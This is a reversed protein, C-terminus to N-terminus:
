KSIRVKADGAFPLANNEMSLWGGDSVEGIVKGDAIKKLIIEEVYDVGEIDEIAAAIESIFIKEGFDFGNGHKGGCVPDFFSRLRLRIKEIIIPSENLLLPKFTIDTNIKKYDPWLVNIKDRINFLARDRVYRDVSDMLDKRPATYEGKKGALIIIHIKGAYDLIAKAKIVEPSAEKAFWEFDDATVAHHRNKITHPGRVVTDRIEESDVGGSSPVHNLVMEIDPNAKRLTNITGKEQNGRGGGGSKYFKATINNKGKPPLMGHIGDGFIIIGNKRDIIYDRSIRGSLAFSDTENWEFFADGEKVEIKQGQLVPKKSFSFSQGPMGNGSGLVENHISIHNVAWVTNPFVANIDASFDANETEIRIWFLERGFEFSRKFDPPFLLSIIGSKNFSSTEDTDPSIEKWVTGNYYKWKAITGESVKERISFYLLILINVEVNEFGLFLQPREFASPEFPDFNETDNFERFIFNNYSLKHKIKKDSYKYVIDISKIFPPDYTSPVYKIGFFINRKELESKLEKRKISEPLSNIVDDIPIHELEGESGYGGSRIRVRIWRNSKGNIEYEPISPCIFEITSIGSRRFNDTSDQSITLIQWRSGDWFEWILEIDKKELEKELEINLIVTSNEKSLAEQSGIYFSSGEEPKEGFPHIGKKIDLPVNDFFLEEPIIKGSIIEATIESITPLRMSKILRKNRNPRISLWCSEINNITTKQFSSINELDFEISLDSSNKKHIKVKMPISNNFWQDFFEESLDLGKINIRMHEFPIKGSFIDDDGLYLIHEAPKEEPDGSFISFIRKESLEGSHDTYLDAPSNISFAYMDFAYATLHQTTEFVIDPDRSSAAITGAPIQASRVGKAPYFTLPVISPRAPLVDIGMLDLFIKYHKEPIRNFQRIYYEAMNSFLRFIVIGPDEPDIHGDGSNIWEPCYHQALVLAQNYIDESRRKDLVPESEM